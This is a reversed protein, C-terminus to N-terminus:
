KPIKLTTVSAHREKKNPVNTRPAIREVIRGLDLCRHNSILVNCVDNKILDGVFISSEKFFGSLSRSPVFYAGYL